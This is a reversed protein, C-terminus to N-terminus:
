IRDINANDVCLKIDILRTMKLIVIKLAVTFFIAHTFCAHISRFYSFPFDHSFVFQQIWMETQDVYVPKFSM